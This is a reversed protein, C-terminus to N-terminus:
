HNGVPSVVPINIDRIECRFKMEKMRPDLSRNLNYNFKSFKVWSTCTKLSDTPLAHWGDFRDGSVWEGNIMLYIVFFWVKM